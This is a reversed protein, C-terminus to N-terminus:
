KWDYDDADHRFTNYKWEEYNEEYSKEPDYSISGSRLGNDFDNQLEEKSKVPM